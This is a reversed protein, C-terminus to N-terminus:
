ELYVPGAVATVPSPRLLPQNQQLVSMKTDSYVICVTDRDRERVCACVCM